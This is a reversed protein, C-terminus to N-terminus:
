VDCGSTDPGIVVQAKPSRPEDHLHMTSTNMLMTSAMIGHCQDSSGFPYFENIKWTVDNSM